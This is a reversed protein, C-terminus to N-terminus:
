LKFNDKVATVFGKNKVDSIFSKNVGKEFHQRESLKSAKQKKKPPKAVDKGKKKKDGSSTFTAPSEKAIAAKFAPNADSKMIKEKGGKTLEVPSEMRPAMGHAKGMALPSSIHKSMWSGGSAVKAVPNDKLLDKKEQAAYGKNQNKLPAGYGM